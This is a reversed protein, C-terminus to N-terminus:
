LGMLQAQQDFDPVNRRVEEFTGKFVIKGKELYVVQDANRV